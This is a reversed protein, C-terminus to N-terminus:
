MRFASNHARTQATLTRECPAPVTSCTPAHAISYQDQSDLICTGDDLPGNATCLAMETRREETTENFTEALKVRFDITVAAASRLYAPAGGGNSGGGGVTSPQHM